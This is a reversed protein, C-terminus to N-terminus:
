TVFYDCCKRSQLRFFFYHAFLTRLSLRVVNYLRKFTRQLAELIGFVLAANFNDGRAHRVRLKRHLHAHASYNQRDPLYPFM